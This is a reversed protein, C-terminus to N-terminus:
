MFQYYQGAFHLYVIMRNNQIKVNRISIVRFVEFFLRTRNKIDTVLRHVCETTCKANRRESDSTYIRQAM